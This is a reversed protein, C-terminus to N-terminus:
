YFIHKLQFNGESSPSMMVTDSKLSEGKKTLASVSFEYKVRKHLDEAEYYTFEFSLSRKYTKIEMGNSGIERVYLNYTTIIGNPRVPPTWSVVLSTSSRVVAKINSPAEPV